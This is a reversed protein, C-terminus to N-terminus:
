VQICSLNEVKPASLSRAASLFAPLSLPLTATREYALALPDPCKNLSSPSLSNAKDTICFPGILSRVPSLTMKAKGFCNTSPRLLSVGVAVTVFGGVVEDALEPAAAGVGAVDPGGLGDVVVEEPGGCGDDVGPDVSVGFGMSPFSLLSLEPASM